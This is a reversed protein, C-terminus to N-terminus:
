YSCLMIFFRALNLTIDTMPSAPKNTKKPLTSRELTPDTTKALTATVGVGFGGAAFVFVAFEFAAFGAAGDDPSLVMGFDNM